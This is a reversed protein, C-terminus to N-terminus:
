FDIGPKWGPQGDKLEKLGYAVVDKRAAAGAPSNCIIRHMMVNENKKLVQQVQDMSLSTAACLSELTHAGKVAAAFDEEAANEEDELLKERAKAHVDHLASHVM